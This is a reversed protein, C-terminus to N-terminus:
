LRFSKLNEVGLQTYRYIAALQTDNLQLGSEIIENYTPSVLTKEAIVRLIDVTEKSEKLRDSISKKEEEKESDGEFLSFATELLENPITGDMMMDVVSPRCLKAVFPQNESFPPLEVIAGESYKKLEDFSTIKKQEKMDKM